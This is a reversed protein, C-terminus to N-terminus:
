FRAFADALLIGDPGFYRAALRAVEVPCDSGPRFRVKRQAGYELFVESYAPQFGAKLAAPGGRRRELAAPTFETHKCTGLTNTAFDPCTCYNDGPQRGRVQVRYTSQSQPNTVEYTSFIPHDGVNKLRFKQERGFQRRLEIQWDELSMDGPKRLRSLKAAKRKRRK